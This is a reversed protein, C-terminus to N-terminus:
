NTNRTWEVVRAVDDLPDPGVPEVNLITVGSDRYAAIRDRVWGVDGVLSTADVVEAPVARGADEHQGGSTLRVVERAEREYGYRCLVQFYGNHQGPGMGGVYRAFSARIDNRLGELGEGIALRGGAVIELAGLESPRRSQGEALDDAWLDAAREPWYIAPIWGDALEAAQTVSRPGLAAVFIPIRDRVPADLLKLPRRRETTPASTLSLEYAGHDSCLPERRWVRRCIEITDAMRQLPRDFPVGHFGEIVQPTSTGLGLIARGNSLADIGAASM